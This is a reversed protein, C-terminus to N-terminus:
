RKVQEGRRDYRQTTTVHSHGAIKQVTSIDADADLTDSIM